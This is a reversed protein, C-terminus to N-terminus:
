WDLELGIARERKSESVRKSVQESESRKSEGEVKEERRRGEGEM